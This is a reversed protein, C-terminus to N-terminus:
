EPATLTGCGVRGGARGAFLVAGGVTVEHDARWFRVQEVQGPSEWRGPGAPHMARQGGGVRERFVAPPDRHDGCGALDEDVDGAGILGQFAEDVLPHVNDPHRERPGGLGGVQVVEARQPHEGRPQPGGQPPPAVQAVERLHPVSRPPRQDLRRGAVHVGAMPDVEAHGGRVRLDRDRRAQVQVLPEPHGVDDVEPVGPGEVGVGAGSTQGGVRGGTAPLGARDGLGGLDPEDVLRQAAPM